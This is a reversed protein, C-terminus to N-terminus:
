MVESNGVYFIIMTEVYSQNILKYIKYINLESFLKVNELKFRRIVSTM